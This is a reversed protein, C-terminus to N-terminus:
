DSKGGATLMNNQVNNFHTSLFRLSVHYKVDPSINQYNLSLSDPNTFLSCRFYM